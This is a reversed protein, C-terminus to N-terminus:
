SGRFGRTPRRCTPIARTSGTSCAIASSRRATRACRAPCTSAAVRDGSIGYEYIYDGLHVVLDLDEDLMRRYASYFGDPWAQCSAFAFPARAGPRRAEPATKTRGVPSVDAGSTFRYFYERGPELGPVDVHM